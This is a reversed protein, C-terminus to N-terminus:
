GGLEPGDRDPGERSATREAKEAQYAKYGDVQETHQEFAQRMSSKNGVAQEFNQMAGAQQFLMLARRREYAERERAQEQMMAELERSHAERLQDAQRATQQEKAKDPVRQRKLQAKSSGSVSRTISEAWSTFLGLLFGVGGSVAQEAGAMTGPQYGSVAGEFLSATEAHHRQGMEVWTAAHRAKMAEGQQDFAARDTAQTQRFQQRREEAYAIAASDIADQAKAAEADRDITEPRNDNSATQQPPRIEERAFLKGATWDPPTYLTAKAKAAPRIAEPAGPTGAARDFATGITRKQNDNVVACREDNDNVIGRLQEGRETSSGKRELASAGQGLHIQPMRDIGQEELTKMSIRAAHGHRELHRNVLKEWKDRWALLADKSNSERDKETFVGNEMIRMAVTLHAHVNRQDGYAHPRHIAVHYALGKRTFCERGFDKVLGARQVDTLEHPLAIVFKRATQSNKRTERAELANALAVPDRLYDPASQPLGVFSFLVDANKRSYDHIEGTPQDIM